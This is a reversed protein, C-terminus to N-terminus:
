VANPCGGETEGAGPSGVFRSFEPYAFGVKGASSVVFTLDEVHIEFPYYEGSVVWGEQAQVRELDLYCRAQLPVAVVMELALSVLCDEILSSASM